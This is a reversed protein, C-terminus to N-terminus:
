VRAQIDLQFKESINVKGSPIDIVEVEAEMWGAALDGTTFQYRAKGITSPVVTTMSKTVLSSGDIRWKVNVNTNTLDIIAKTDADKCTVELVALTDGAIAKYVAM